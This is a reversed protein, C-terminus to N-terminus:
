TRRPAQPDGDVVVRAYNAERDRDGEGQGRNLMGHPSMPM